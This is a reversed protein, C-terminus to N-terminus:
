LRNTTKVKHKQHKQTRSQKKDPEKPQKKTQKARRERGKGHNSKNNRWTIPKVHRIPRRNRKMAKTKPGPRGAHVQIM